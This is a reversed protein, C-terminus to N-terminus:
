QPERTIAGVAAKGDFSIQRGAFNALISQRLHLQSLIAANAVRFQFSKRTASDRATVIGTGADISTIIAKNWSSSANQAPSSGALSPETSSLASTIRGALHGENLFVQLTDFNAFLTQGVKLSNLETNTVPTFQFLQGSSDVKATIVRKSKDIATIESKVGFSTATKTREGQGNDHLGRSAFLQPVALKASCVLLSMLLARRKIGTKAPVSGLNVEPRTEAMGINREETSIAFKAATRELCGELSAGRQKDGTRHFQNLEFQGERTERWRSSFSVRSIRM